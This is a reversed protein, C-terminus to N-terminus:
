GSGFRDKQMTYTSMNEWVTSGVLFARLAGGNHLTHYAELQLLSILKM